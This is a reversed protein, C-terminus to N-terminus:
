RSTYWMKRCYAIHYKRYAAHGADIVLVRGENPLFTHANNLHGLAAGTIGIALFAASVLLTFTRKKMAVIM